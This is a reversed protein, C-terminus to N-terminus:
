AIFRCRAMLGPMTPYFRTPHFCAPRVEKPPTAAFAKGLCPVRDRGSRLGLARPCHARIDGERREIENRAHM